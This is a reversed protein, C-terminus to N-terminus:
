QSGLDHGPVPFTTSGARYLANGAAMRGATPPVHTSAGAFTAPLTSPVGEKLSAGGLRRGPFRPVRLTVATVTGYAAASLSRGSSSRELWVTTTVSAGTNAFGSSRPPKRRTPRGSTVEPLPGCWVATPQRSPRTGASCLAVTRSRAQPWPRAVRASASAPAPWTMPTSLESAIIPKARACGSGATASTEWRTPSAYIKDDTPGPVKSPAVRWSPRMSM